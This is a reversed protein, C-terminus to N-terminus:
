ILNDQKKGSPDILMSGLAGADDASEFEVDAKTILREKAEVSMKSSSNTTYVTKGQIDDVTEYSGDELAVVDYEEFQDEITAIKQLAEGTSNLFYAAPLLLIMLLVTLIIGTYYKRVSGKRNTILVALGVDIATLVVILLVVYQTPLIGIKLVLAVFAVELALALIQIVNSVPIPIVSGNEGIQKWREKITKM